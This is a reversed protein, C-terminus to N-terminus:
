TLNKGEISLRFQNKTGSLNICKSKPGVQLMMALLALNQTPIGGMM